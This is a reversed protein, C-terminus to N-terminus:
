SVMNELERPTLDYYARLHERYAELCSGCCCKELMWEFQRCYLTTVVGLVIVIVCIFIIVGIEIPFSKWDQLSSLIERMRGTM